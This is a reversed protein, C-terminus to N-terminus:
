SDYSSATKTPNLINFMTNYTLQVYFILCQLCNFLILIERIPM